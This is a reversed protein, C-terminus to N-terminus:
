GAQKRYMEAFVGGKAVLEDFRGEEAVSGNKMCYINDAIKLNYLRHTVVIIIRGDIDAKLNEFLEYEADPDMASTPEDLILIKSQKYMGRALAVKQWQGGSLQEGNKYTKGLTTEYGKPMKNIKEALGAKRSAANLRQSDAQEENLAINDEVSMYYKGYDQFVASINQRLDSTGIDAIDLDDIRVEGGTANYLRCLLKILTSKGSGNEGVIATIKGPQFQMNINNLVLTETSPYIFKLDKVQVGKKLAPFPRPEVAESLIHPASLYQMIQQLYLQNQFLNVTSQFFSTIAGQLRQFVQFYIVLGGITILGTVASLIITGYIITTVIIEFSKIFLNQKLFKKQLDIKGRYITHRINLFKNIFRKGFDFIRVEKAYVDTTLYQFYDFAKRQLPVYRKDQLYQRHSNFLKSVAMPVGLLIVMLIVSWHVLMLFGSLMAINIIGSIIGQLSSVLQSPRYLSQQQAAHLDDYFGPNEYYELDLEIAKHLVRGAIEDAVLQQQVLQYYTTLQTIIASIIQLVAFLILYRGCSQWTITNNAVIVDILKKLVLLSFLPFFAQLVFLCLNILTVRKSMHWVLAFGKRSDALFTRVRHKKDNLAQMM